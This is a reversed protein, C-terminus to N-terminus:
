ARVYLLRQHSVLLSEGPKSLSDWEFPAESEPEDARRAKWGNHCVGLRGRGESGLCNRGPEGQCM